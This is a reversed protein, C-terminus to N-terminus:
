ISMEIMNQDWLFESLVWPALQSQIKKTLFM